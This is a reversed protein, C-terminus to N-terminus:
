RKITINGALKMQKGDINIGLVIYYYTGEPLDEGLLNNIGKGRWDNKYDPNAFVENGWRNFVKVDVKTGFPKQITWTDDIGDNNPSFGEPIILDVKPIYFLTPKRTTDTTNNVRTPDTSISNIMGFITPASAVASNQFTGSTNNAVNIRLIVSDVKNVDLTSAITVLDTNTVGDYNANKQLGGSTTLSVVKVGRTDSFVKTLDDKLLVSDIFERSLNEVKITFSVDFSADLNMIVSGAVKTVELIKPVIKPLVLLHLTANTCKLPLGGCVTYVINIPGIFGTAPTFSYTGNTNMLFIGKSSPITTVDTISLSAGATNKDNSLVNGEIPNGVITSAFDDIAITTPVSTSEKVTYYVVATQCKAPNANDCVNYVLSDSGVFSATPTFTVEGTTPNISATGNKPASTINISSPNLTGGLNGAKDNALVNITIPTNVNTIAFDTNTIPPNSFSSPDVVTIVLPVLPCGTTKGPECTPVFYTYKGPVTATFTYTGNPSVNIVGGAPNDPNVAPQAYTTGLPVIDNTSVNGALPVTINTVGFDPIFINTIEVPAPTVLIELTNVACFAPLSGDCAKYIIVVPGSFGPAPTFTYSGDANFVLNGEEAKPGTMLIATLSAGATNKDNSLVNGTVSNSGNPSAVVTAFDANAITSPRANVETVTIYVVASQCNSPSANDCVSYVLSDIGIFGAAPTYTVAGTSPNISASGNAPSNPIVISSINLIGAINGAKDNALINITTATGSPTTAIDINVVPKNSTIAPDLVTIELPVLPCGSNQGPACTPVFYTYKGPTTATFTYTGNPSVTIVGGTPNNPNVAPQGYTTGAPVVDNTNLSGSVPVNINTAAIDPTITNEPVTIVLTETPCNSTQGPACVPITYTYTGSVTATFSYTGDTNVTISAGTIQAPQGYTSGAPTNDNSSINGNSPINKYITAADNVLTNEPVTIM